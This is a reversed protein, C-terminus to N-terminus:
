LNSKLNYLFDEVERKDYKISNIEERLNISTVDLFKKSRDSTSKQNKASNIKEIEDSYYKLKNNIDELEQEVFKIGDNRNEKKFFM